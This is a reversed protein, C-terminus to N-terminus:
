GFKLVGDPPILTSTTHRHRADIEKESLSSNLMIFLMFIDSVTGEPDRRSMHVRSAQQSVEFQCKIPPIENM